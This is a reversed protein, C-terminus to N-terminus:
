NDIMGQRVPECGDEQEEIEDLRSRYNRDNKGLLKIIQQLPYIEDKRAKWIKIVDKNHEVEDYLRAVLMRTTELQNLLIYTGKAAADMQSNEKVLEPFFKHAFSLWKLRKALTQRRPQFEQHLGEFFECIGKFHAGQMFPNEQELVNQFAMYSVRARHTSELLLACVHFSNLTNSFYCSVLKHLEPKNILHILSANIIEENPSLLDELLINQSQATRSNFQHCLATQVAQCFKDFSKTKLVIKYNHSLRWEEQASREENTPLSSNTFDLCM